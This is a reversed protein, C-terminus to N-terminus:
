RLFVMMVAKSSQARQGFLGTQDSTVPAAGNTEMATKAKNDSTNFFKQLANPRKSMNLSSVHNIKLDNKMFTRIQKLRQDALKVDAPSAKTDKAPYERDAWAAIEVKDINKGSDKAQKVLDRIQGRTVENLSASGQDFSVESVLDAGMAKSAGEMESSVGEAFAFSTFATCLCILFLTKM